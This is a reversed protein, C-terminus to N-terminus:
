GQDALHAFNQPDYHREQWQAAPCPFSQCPLVYVQIGPRVFTGPRIRAPVRLDTTPVSYQAAVQRTLSSYWIPVTVPVIAKCGIGWNCPPILLVSDKAPIATVKSTFWSGYKDQMEKLRAANPEYTSVNACANVWEIEQASRMFVICAQSASLPPLALCLLVPSHPLVDMALRVCNDVPMAHVQSLSLSPSSCWSDNAM